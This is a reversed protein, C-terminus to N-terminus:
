KFAEETLVQLCKDMARKFTDTAKFNKMTSYGVKYDDALEKLTIGKLVSYAIAEASAGLRLFIYPTRNRKTKAEM